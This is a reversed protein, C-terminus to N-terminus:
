LLSFVHNWVGPHIIISYHGFYGFDKRSKAGFLHSHTHPVIFDSHSGITHYINSSSHIKRVLDERFESDIKMQKYRFARRNIKDLLPVGGWPSCITIVNDVVINDLPAIHEAYYGAIIGGMSHGILTVHNSNTIKRIEEIKRRVITSSIEDIGIKSDKFFHSAEMNLSFVSYQKLYTRFYLRAFLWQMENYGSGHLLLIPKKNKLVKPIPFNILCSIFVLIGAIPLVLLDTILGLLYM